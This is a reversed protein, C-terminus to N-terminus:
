VVQRQRTMEAVALLTGIKRSEIGIRTGERSQKVRARVASCIMELRRLIPPDDADRVDAAGRDAKELHVGFDARANPPLNKPKSILLLRPVQALASAVRM